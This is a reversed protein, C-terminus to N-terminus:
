SFLPHSVLLCLGYGRGWCHGGELGLLAAGGWVAARGGEETGVRLLTWLTVAQRGCRQLWRRGCGGQFGSTM